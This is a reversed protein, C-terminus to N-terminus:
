LNDLKEKLLKNVSQPNAKGKTAKMVQGVFFGIVSTKGGKYTEVQKQNDAIVKEIIAILETEDSIQVLNLRKIVEDATEGSKAMEEFVNKAIKGSITGKDILKYINSIETPKVKFETISINNENIIRFVESTLWNAIKKPNDPYAKVAEEYYFAIDRDDTIVGADYESLGYDKVFRERKAIALEPLSERVKKIYSEEVVLPPLDPEPFYRYDQSEEKTRMVFTKGNKVNFLRTEQTIVNGKELEEVQRKIEYDIANKVNRFSNLNKIEVRTGFTKSDKPMVSINVDCRLSGEEMNCDSADIYKLVNKLTVLYKYAEDSSRMDPESVIEVLPVGSRNMDVFSVNEDDNESHISKGADEEVHIRTIGLKKLQGDDTFINLHGEYCLPLDYQSIQYSKPLDPYFYNKRDFKSYETIKCNFALGVQVAKFLVDENLVPLVGPHGQCIPCTKSNPDEGFTIPCGCFIKTNSKLQAHVELGIVPTYNDITNM